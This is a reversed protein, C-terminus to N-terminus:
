FMKGSQFVRLPIALGKAPHHPVTSGPIASRGNWIAKAGTALGLRLEIHVARTRSDGFCM